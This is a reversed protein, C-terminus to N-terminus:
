MGPRPATPLVGGILLEMSRSCFVVHCAQIQSYINSVCHVCVRTKAKPSSEDDDQGIM